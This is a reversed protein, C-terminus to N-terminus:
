TEKKAESQGVLKWPLALVNVAFDREHDFLVDFGAFVGIAARREDFKIRQSDDGLARRAELNGLTSIRCKIRM